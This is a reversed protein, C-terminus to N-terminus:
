IFRKADQKNEAIKRDLYQNIIANSRLQYVLDVDGFHIQRLQLRQSYLTPFDQWSFSMIELKNFWILNGNSQWDM